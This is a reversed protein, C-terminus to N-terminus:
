WSLLSFGAALLSGHFVGLCRCVMFEYSYPKDLIVFFCPCVLDFFGAVSQLVIYFPFPFGM